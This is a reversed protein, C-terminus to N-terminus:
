KDIMLRLIKHKIAKKTEIEGRKEGQRFVIIRDTIEFVDELNHSIFIITVQNNRLQKMLELVKRRQGVALAATAEDMILLKADWYVARAIAVGKRQGGSLEKVPISINPIKVQLKYLLHLTEENMRKKDLMKIYGLLYSKYFEKGAFINAPSDLNDALSLDQYITEIGLDRARKPNNIETEKGYWFIKGNDPKHVGSIMKIFTSKGAGNDGVLGVIESPYIECSVENVAHVGGFHKDIKEVKLIPEM